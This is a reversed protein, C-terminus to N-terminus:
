LTKPKQLERIIESRLLYKKKGISYQRFRGQKILKYLTPLSIGILKAAQTQTLRENNSTKQDKNSEECLISSGIGNNKFLAQLEQRLIQKLDDRTTFIRETQEKMVASFHYQNYKM